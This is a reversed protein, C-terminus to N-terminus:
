LLGKEIATQVVRSKSKLEKEMAEISIGTCDSIINLSVKRIIHQEYIFKWAYDNVRDLKVGFIPPKIIYVKKDPYDTANKCVRDFAREISNANKRKFVQAMRVPTSLGWILNITILNYGDDTYDRGKNSKEDSKRSM